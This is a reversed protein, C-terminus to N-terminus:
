SLLSQSPNSAKGRWRPQCSWSFDYNYRSAAIHFRSFQRVVSSFDGHSLPGYFPSSLSPVGFLCFVEICPCRPFVEAVADETKGQGIRLGSTVVDLSQVCNWTLLITSSLVFCSTSLDDRWIRATFMSGESSIRFSLCLADISTCPRAQKRFPPWSFSSLLCPEKLYTCRTDDPSDSSSVALPTIACQKYIQIDYPIHQCQKTRQSVTSSRHYWADLTARTYPSAIAPAAFGAMPPYSCGSSRSLPPPIHSTGQLRQLARTLKCYEDASHTKTRDEQSTYQM